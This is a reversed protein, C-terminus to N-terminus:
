CESLKRFYNKLWKAASTLACLEGTLLDLAMKRRRNHQEVMSLSGSSELLEISEKYEEILQAIWSLLLRHAEIEKNKNKLAYRALRGDNNTAENAMDMLEQSSTSCLVRCYARLAQPIGRGKGKISMVEKITFVDLSTSTDGEKIVPTRYSHLLNLKENRLPDDHPIKVQIKVEDYINDSLTFGFDLLLTANSFKGYSILVQDGPAYVCDAIVESLEKEEDSM